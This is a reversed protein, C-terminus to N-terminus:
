SPTSSGSTCAARRSALRTTPRGPLACQGDRLSAGAYVKDGLAPACDPAAQTVVLGVPAVVVVGPQQELIAKRASWTESDMTARAGIKWTALYEIRGIITGDIAAAAAEARSVPADDEFVVLYQDSAVRTEEDILIFSAPDPATTWAEGLSPGPEIAPNASRRRAELRWCAPTV